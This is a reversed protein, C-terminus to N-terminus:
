AKSTSEIKLSKWQPFICKTNRYIVTWLVYFILRMKKRREERMFLFLSLEIYWICGELYTISLLWPIVEMYDPVALIACTQSSEKLRCTKHSHPVYGPAKAGQPICSPLKDEQKVTDEKQDVALQFTLDNKRKWNKRRRWVKMQTLQVM